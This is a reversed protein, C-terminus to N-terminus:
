QQAQGAATGPRLREFLARVDGETLTGVKVYRITGEADVFYSVPIPSIQFQRAIEGDTDLAIPYAVQYPELFKRVGSQGDTEQSYLNVGIIELGQAKLDRYVAQLAPTEEKCPECWTGWFNVLVVKGRYDSLRVTGGDLGPLEFQPAARRTEGVAPLGAEASRGSVFWVAAIIALGVLAGAGAMVLERRSVGPRATPRAPAADIGVDYASRRAPDSLVAYAAELEATRRAAIESLEGDGAGVRRPDYRDIQHRFAEAIQESTAQRDIGLLQYHTQM